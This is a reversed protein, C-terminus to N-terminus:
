DMFFVPHRQHGKVRCKLNFHEIEREAYKSSFFILDLFVCVALKYLSALYKRIEIYALWISELRLLSGIARRHVPYTWRPQETQGM